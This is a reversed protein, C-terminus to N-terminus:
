PAAQPVAPEIKMTIGYMTGIEKGRDAFTYPPPLDPPQDGCLRSLKRSAERFENAEDVTLDIWAIQRQERDAREIARRINWELSRYHVKM